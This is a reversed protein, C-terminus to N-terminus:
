HATYNQRILFDTARGHLLSQANPLPLTGLSKDFRVLTHLLLHQATKGRQLTSWAGNLTVVNVVFTSLGWELDCLGSWCFLVVLLHFELVVFFIYTQLMCAYFRFRVNSGTVKVKFTTLTMNFWYAGIGPWFLDFTMNLESTLFLFNIVSFWNAASM